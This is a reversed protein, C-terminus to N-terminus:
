NPIVIKDGVRIFHSKLNNAKKLNKLPTNFLKSIKDLTDGRKVVYLGKEIQSVKARKPIPIVLQQNISLLNSKLNNAEKIMKYSIKYKKGIEYLSEGSQVIHIMFNINTPKFNAKFLALRNYPIYIEYEKSYPPIFEYRLHRNLKKLESISMNMSEAVDSLHTGGKLKVPAIPYISGRNLLHEFDDLLLFNTSNAMLALSVIKRIYFRSERPLYKKKSNLLINLDDSGAKKIGRALRGEGCNYAIAALYWKGFRKHLHKLYKIAIETSKIPDRREDVYSNIKLGFIKATAPMFQWLGAAKKKSYARTSFNSEAMALYLFAQPIGAEKIMDKIIPVFIYAENLKKLFFDKRDNSVVNKMSIFTPEKLFEENIDLSKLVDLDKKDYGSNFLSAVSLSILFILSVVIKM